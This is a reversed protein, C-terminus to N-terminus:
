CLAALDPQPEGSQCKDGATESAASWGPKLTMEWGSTGPFNSSQARPGGKPFWPWWSGRLTGANHEWSEDNEGSEQSQLPHCKCGGKEPHGRCKPCQTLTEMRRLIREPLELLDTSADMTM